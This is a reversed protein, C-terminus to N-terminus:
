HEARTGILDMYELESIVTVGLEEAKKKKEPGM